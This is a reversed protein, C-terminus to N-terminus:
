AMIRGGRGGRRRPRFISVKHLLKLGTGTADFRYVHIFGASFSRPTLQLDKVVGVCVFWEDGAGLGAGKAEGRESGLQVVCM